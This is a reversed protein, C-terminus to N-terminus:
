STTSFISDAISKWDPMAKFPGTPLPARNGALLYGEVAGPFGPELFVEELDDIFHSCNLAAIRAVKEARTTEFYVSAPDLGFGDPEFFSLSEMWTRAASRLNIKDPDFHGTETKHSVICVAIQSDRCRNLFTSVGDLLRAQNMHAGYVRGQLAMWTTEGDPQGRLLNRVETKTTARGKAILGENEAVAPFVHDYGAITNDFDLGILV